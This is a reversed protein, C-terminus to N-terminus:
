LQGGQRRIRQGENLNDLSNKFENVTSAMKVSSPLKNWTEVLRMSWFNQRVEGKWQQPVLNLHGGAQRTRVTDEAPQYMTFWINPDVDAKGSLVRYAQILDGRKRREELSELNLERLRDEYHRGKLNSVAKVARRQVAELIEKDGITWPSWAQVAYELHPRVYTKYLDIFVTKDRYGVGRCLQGLVSNAKKAAKSCQMSPKLSQHVLVGLDKEWESAALSVGGMTYEFMSNKKGLHLIHCKDKNFEMQWIDAWHMLKDLGRQFEDRDQEGMVMKAWKTDDAFKSLFGGLDEVGGDIDNIYMLFLCPGLVSGQVEWSSAEGNIVVRQQRGTLWEGVWHLVKGSIGLGECKQLLRRIPVKDFAKSFDLYVVDVDQGSDVMSTLKELYELLNTMTSRRRMFGHQSMRLLENRALFDVIEDRLISEMVKCVICTLSVPRYNGPVGKAGSKFIPTVNARKWDDPVVGEELCKTFVM